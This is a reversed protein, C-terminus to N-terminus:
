RDNRKKQPAPQSKEPQTKPAERRTAPATQKTQPTEKRTAPASQKTQAPARETKPQTQRPEQWKDRHYEKAEDVAPKKPQTVPREPRKAPETPKAKEVPERTPQAPQPKPKAPQQTAPVRAPATEQKQKVPEKPPAWNSRQRDQETRERQIETQAQERAQKIGPYKKANKDAYQSPTMAKSPNKTNYKQRGEEFKGYEQLRQPLRAKDSLWADSIVERNRNRWEGVGMTIATGSRRHGYYHNVFHTSLHNYRHHHQPHWFYWHMFHYSPFYMIVITQHYPYFGWYWWYPYPRWCPQPAWWPYGFWYPYNYQYYNYETRYRQEDYDAYVDDNYVDYVEDTYGYENAYEQAASQFESRANPDNEITKKWNDLETAHQRAVALSLSDMNHIVWAPDEKYLDGVLVTFRLDENLIDVVEPMELLKQFASRAPAPYGAIMQEFARQSTNMLNDIKVLTLIEDEAISRVEDRKDEPVVDLAQRTAQRDNRREVLTSVLGPYRTLDYFVTQTNRPFDEILTRFAASTKEQANKMKILVEPHKSSELRALRADEPYLALAEISKKNEEALQRLLAMDTQGFVAQSGGFLLAFFFLLTRM